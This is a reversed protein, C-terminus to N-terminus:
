FFSGATWGQAYFLYTKVCKLIPIGKTAVFIDCIQCKMFNFGIMEEKQQLKQIIVKANSEM